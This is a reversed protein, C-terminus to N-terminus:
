SRSRRVSMQLPTRSGDQSGGRVAESSGRWPNATIEARSRRAKPDHPACARLHKGAVAEQGGVGRRSLLRPPM